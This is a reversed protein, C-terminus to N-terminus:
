AKDSGLVDRLPNSPCVCCADHACGSKPAQVYPGVFVGVGLTEIVRTLAKM